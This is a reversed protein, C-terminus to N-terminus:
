GANNAEELAKLLSEGLKRELEDRSLFAADDKIVELPVELDYTVIPQFSDNIGTGTKTARM